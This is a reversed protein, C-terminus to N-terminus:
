PLEKLPINNCYWDQEEKSAPRWHKELYDSLEKRDMWRGAVRYVFTHKSGLQKQVSFCPTYGWMYNERSLYPNFFGSRILSRRFQEINDETVKLPLNEGDPEM